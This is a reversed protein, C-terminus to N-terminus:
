RQCTKCALTTLTLVFLLCTIAFGEFLSQTVTIFEMIFDSRQGSSAFTPDMRQWSEGDFLMLRHTQGPMRTEMSQPTLLTSELICNPLAVVARSNELQCDALKVEEGTRINMDYYGYGSRFFRLVDGSLYAYNIPLEGLELMEQAEPSLDASCSIPPYEYGEGYKTYAYSMHNQITVTLNCLM